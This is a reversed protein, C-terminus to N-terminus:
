GVQLFDTEAKELCEGAAKVGRNRIVASPRAWDRLRQLWQPTRVDVQRKDCDTHIDSEHKSESPKVTRLLNDGEASDSGIADYDVDENDPPISTCPRAFPKDENDSPNQTELSRNLAQASITLRRKLQRSKLGRSTVSWSISINAVTPRFSSAVTTGKRDLM